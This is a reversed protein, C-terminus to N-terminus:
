ARPSELTPSRAVRANGYRSSSLRAVPSVVFMAMGVGPPTARRAWSSLVWGRPAPLQTPARMGIWADDIPLTNM